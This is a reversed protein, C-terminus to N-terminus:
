RSEFTEGLHIASDFRNMLDLGSIRPVSAGAAGPIMLDAAPHRILM